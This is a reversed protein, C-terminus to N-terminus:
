GCFSRPLSGPAKCVFLGGSFLLNSIFFLYTFLQVRLVSFRRFLWSHLLAIAGALVVTAIYVYPLKSAGYQQLFLSSRAPKVVAFTSIVLFLNLSMLATMLWEGPRVDVATRLLSFNKGGM